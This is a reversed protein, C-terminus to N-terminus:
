GVLAVQSREPAGYADVIRNLEAQYYLSQLGFVFCLLLGVVPNCTVPIGASRQADAIRRGTNYFSILPTVVTWSLTRFPTGARRRVCRTTALPRPSTLSRPAGPGSTM